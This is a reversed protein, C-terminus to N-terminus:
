FVHESMDELQWLSLAIEILTIMRLINKIKIIYKMKIVWVLDLWKLEFCGFYRLTLSVPLSPYESVFFFIPSSFNDSLLIHKEM